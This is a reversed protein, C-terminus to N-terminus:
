YTDGPDGMQVVLAGIAFSPTDGSLVPKPTTLAGFNRLLGASVANFLGFYTINASSAWNASATGFTKATGNTKSTATGTANAVAADWDSASTSIRAYGTGSTSVETLGGGADDTPTGSFLGIFLTEPTYPSTENFFMDLLAQQMVKTFGAM